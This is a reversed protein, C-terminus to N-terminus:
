TPNTAFSLPLPVTIAMILNMWTKIASAHAM